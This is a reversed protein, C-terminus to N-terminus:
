VNAASDESVIVSVQQRFTRYYVAVDAARTFVTIFHSICTAIKVPNYGLSKLKRAVSSFQPISWRARHRHMEAGSGM